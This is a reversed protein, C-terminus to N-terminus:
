RSNKDNYEIIKELMEDINTYMTDIYNEVPEGGYYFIKIGRELCLNYKITDYAITDEAKKHKGWCVCDKYHQEGQCEIGVNYDPLYFDLSKLGLFSKDRFQFVYEIKHKQFYDIMRQELKWGGDDEDICDPCLNKYQEKLIFLGAPKKFYKQHKICFVEVETYTDVYICREDFIYIGEWIEGAKKRFFESTYNRGSFEQICDPCIHNRLDYAFFSEAVAEFYKKHHKCYVTIKKDRGSYICKEDFIYQPWKPAIREIFEDQTLRHVNNEKQCEPCLDITKGRIIYSARTKFYGHKPCFVEVLSEYSEYISNSFDYKDGYNQECIEFFREQTLNVNRLEQICDPCLNMDTDFYFMKAKTKFYKQHKICFVEVETIGNVYICREDFIYIGEWKKNMKERFEESTMKLLEFACEQCLHKRELAHKGNSIADRARPTTFYGHKSCKFTIPKDSGNYVSESTDYRDGWRERFRRFYEESSIFSNEKICLPCLNTSIHKGRFLYNCKIEFVNNHKLCKLKIVSQGKLNDPIYEVIYKGSYFDDLQKQIRELSYKEKVKTM